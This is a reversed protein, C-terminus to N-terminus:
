RAAPPRPPGAPRERGAAPRRDARRHGRRGVEYLAAPMSKLLRKPNALANAAGICLLLTALRLGDYVAALLGRRLGAGGLRIGAAAEPLPVEPLTFLVHAATSGGFLVRFVVRIAIVILASTLYARFGRAWPADTRRASVVFAVVAIILLLLLPNTTRSAATALGLAWIWWAGPHLARAPSGDGDPSSRRRRRPPSPGISSARVLALARCRRGCGAVAGVPSGGDSAPGDGSVATGAAEDSSDATTPRTWRRRAPPDDHSTAELTSSTTAGPEDPERHLQHADRVVRREAPPPPAATGGGASPRPADLHDTPRPPRRRWRPGAPRGRTRRRRRVGLGRRQGAPPCPQRRGVLQLDVVGGRPAHWYAWYANPPRRGTARTRRRSATSGASCAPSSRDTGQYAFGARTLAEFGSRVPQPACRM